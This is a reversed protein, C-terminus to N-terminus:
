TVSNDCKGFRNSSMSSTVPFDELNERSLRVLEPNLEIGYVKQRVMKRHLCVSRVLM